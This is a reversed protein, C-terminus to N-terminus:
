SKVCFEIGDETKFNNGCFTPKIYSKKVNNEFAFKLRQTPNLPLGSKDIGSHKWWFRLHGRRPHPKREVKQGTSKEFISYFRNFHIISEVELTNTLKGKKSFQPLKTKIKYGCPVLLPGLQVLLSCSVAVRNLLTNKYKIYEFFKDNKLVIAKNEPVPFLIEKINGYKEHHLRTITEFYPTKVITEANIFPPINITETTFSGPLKEIHNGRWSSSFFQNDEVLFALLDDQNNPTTTIVICNKDPWPIEDMQFLLNTNDVLEKLDDGLDLYFIQYKKSKPSRNHIDDILKVINKRNM